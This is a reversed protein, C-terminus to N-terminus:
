STSCGQDCMCCGTAATRQHARANEAWGKMMGSRNRVENENVNHKTNGGRERFYLTHFM